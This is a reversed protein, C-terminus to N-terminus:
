TEQSTTWDPGLQTLKTFPSSSSSSSTIMWGAQGVRSATTRWGFVPIQRITTNSLTIQHGPVKQFACMVCTAGSRRPGQGRLALAVGRETMAGTTVRTICTTLPCGRGGMPGLPMSSARPAQKPPGTSPPSSYPSAFIRYGGRPPRHCDKTLQGYFPRRELNIGKGLV